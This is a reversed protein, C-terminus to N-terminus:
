VLHHGWGGCMYVAGWFWVKRNSPRSDSGLIPSNRGFNIELDTRWPQHYESRDLINSRIPAGAGIDLVDMADKKFEDAFRMEKSM